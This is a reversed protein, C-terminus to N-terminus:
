GTSSQGVCPEGTMTNGNVFTFYPPRRAAVSSSIQMRGATNGASVCLKGRASPPFSSIGRTMHM